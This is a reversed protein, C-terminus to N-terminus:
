EGKRPESPKGSESLRSLLKEKVTMKRKADLEADTEEVAEQLIAQLEPDIGFLKGAEPTAPPTGSGPPLKIGLRKELTQLRAGIEALKQNTIVTQQVHESEVKKVVSEMTATRDNIQHATTTLTEAAKM